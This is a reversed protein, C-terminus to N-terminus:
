CEGGDKAFDLFDQLEEDSFSKGNYLFSRCGDLWLENMLYGVEPSHFKAIRKVAQHIEKASFQDVKARLIKCEECM